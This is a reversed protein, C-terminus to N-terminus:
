QVYIDTRGIEDLHESCLILRSIANRKEMDTKYVEIWAEKECKDCKQPKIYQSYGEYHEM